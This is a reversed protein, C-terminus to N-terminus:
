IVEIRFKPIANNTMGLLNFPYTAPQTEGTNDTARTEIEHVGATADWPFEFRVWTYRGLNPPVLAARQWGSGNLRYHVERVGNPAWAYGAMTHQGANMVPLEGRDLPYNSPLNPSQDLVLPVTLTSKVNMWRVMTGVVDAATVGDLFEDNPGPTDAAHEPGIYAENRVNLRAWFRHPEIRIETLWKISATGGFGPVLARVPFGHDPQLPLGNMMYALGIDDPRELIDSIAMPRRMDEGDVGSHFLAEVANDQLGVLDFIVSMPVYTWEALGVAGLGWPGGTVDMMGQQEWFLNRGNGHCEMTAFINRSPLALLDEYSLEIPNAVGAGHIRVKWNAPDLEPYDAARPTPYHNRVYFQEIPTILTSYDFWRGTANAGGIPMVRGMDKYNPGGADARAAGTSAALGGGGVALATAGAASVRFLDRRGIEGRKVKQVLDREIQDLKRTM